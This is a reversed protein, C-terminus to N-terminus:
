RDKEVFQTAGPNPPINISKGNTVLPNCFDVNLYRIYIVDLLTVPILCFEVALRNNFYFKIIKDLCSVKQSTASNIIFSSIIVM